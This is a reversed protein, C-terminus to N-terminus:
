VRENFLAETFIRGTMNIAAYVDPADLKFTGLLWARQDSNPPSLKILAARLKHDILTAYARFASALGHGTGLEDTMANTVTAAVTVVSM